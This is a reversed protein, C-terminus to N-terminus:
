HALSVLRLCETHAPSTAKQQRATNGQMCSNTRDLKGNAFPTAAICCSAPM